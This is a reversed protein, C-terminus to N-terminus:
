KKLKNGLDILLDAIDDKGVKSENLRQSGEEQEKKLTEIAQKLSSELNSVLSNLEDIKKNLNGEFKEKENKVELTINVIEQKIEENIDKQVETSKEQIKDVEKTKEDLVQEIKKLRDELEKKLTEHILSNEDKFSKFKQDISQLDEGFLIEKIRSLNESESGSNSNTM